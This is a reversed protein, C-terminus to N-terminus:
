PENKVGNLIQHLMKELFDCRTELSEIRELQTLQKERNVVFERFADGDTNVVVGGRKVYQSMNHWRLLVFNLFFQVLFQIM